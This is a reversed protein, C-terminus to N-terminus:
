HREDPPPMHEDRLEKPLSYYWERWRKREADEGEQRGEQRGERKAEALRRENLRRALVITVEVTAVVLLTAGTSTAMGVVVALVTELVTDHVNIFVQYCGILIALTWAVAVSAAVYRIEDDRFM